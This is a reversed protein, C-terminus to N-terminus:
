LWKEKQSLPQVTNFSINLEWSKHSLVEAKCRSRKGNKRFDFDQIWASSLKLITWGIVLYQPDPWM